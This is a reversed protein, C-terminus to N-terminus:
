IQPPKGDAADSAGAQAAAAELQAQRQAQKAAQEAQALQELQPMQQALQNITKAIPALQDKPVASQEAGQLHGQAHALMAKLIPLGDAQQSTVQAAQELAPMIIGLHIVHNDRPSIPVMTGQGAILLMEMQQLRTQEALITPDEDPLLVSDAFEEDIQAAMSRRRLEKQNFLPDGKNEMAISVIQQREITTYDAITEAVPMAAIQNLEERSMILLMKKQFAKADEDSVNPDCIRKQMTSQVTAFQTLFRSTITDRSEEERSALLNVAAATVREGELAKPTVAGAMQDLLSTLFQDLQLFAEINPDIKRETVQYGQGILLANGVVSMKFRRLAKDDAQIILKGALNLRDVVENRARDLMAAMAYVERGIGKSGHLTGNGYEFAFLGLAEPMSEYQDERELLLEKAAGDKGAGEDTLIYHSVKGDAEQGFLHWVYIVMAGNEHSLGVNAERQLDEYVREWGDSKNRRYDPVAKNIAEIVNQIKWGAAKAAEKDEIMSFLEHILYKDKLIVLQTKASEQKNGTPVYFQDQRFFKPFWGFEDLWAVAAYGFLVNEMSIETLLDNWGPRSRILTTIERRFAETKEAGGPVDDPLKSNTLYKVADLAKKLRPSVKNVLMPLPKTTFNSKWGLGDAELSSQTHPKESNYKATIRANRTNRERAATKLSSILNRMQAVSSLARRQPKGAPSLDPANIGGTTEPSDSYNSTPQLDVPM